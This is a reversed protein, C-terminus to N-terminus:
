EGTGILFRSLKGVANATVRIQDQAEKWNRQEIAERIGPLTKVGYGTYFGPAYLVHKYWERRPLGPILLQQEAQYLKKNLEDHDTNSKIATEWLHSLSDASSQLASLANQLSSFDLFPVPTKPHPVIYTKTPDAALTYDHSNILQNEVDTNDKMQQLLEMVEKTYDNITTYLSRFDFPLVDANAMRLAARGATQSLTIGYVFGPDKFRIYNDYSDYISHYEGGPSEGGYGLNLSPVGLHQLFASYDSGSGLASLPLMRKDLIDKKAKTSSANVAM